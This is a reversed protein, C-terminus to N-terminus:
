LGTSDYGPCRRCACSRGERRLPGGSLIPLPRAQEDLQACSLAAPPAEPSRSPLRRRILQPVDVPCVQATAVPFGEIRRVLASAQAQEDRDTTRPPGAAGQHLPGSTPFSSSPAAPPMSSRRPTSGQAPSRSGPPPSSASLASRAPRRFAAVGVPDSALRRRRWRWRRLADGTRAAARSPSSLRRRRHQNSQLRRRVASQVGIRLLEPDIGEEAGRRRRRHGFLMPEFDLENPGPAAVTM